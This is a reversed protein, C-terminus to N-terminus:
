YLKCSSTLKRNEYNRESVIKIVVLYSWSTNKVEHKLTSQSTLEFHLKLEFTMEIKTAPLIIKFSKKYAWSNKPHLVNHINNTVPNSAVASQPLKMGFVSFSLDHPIM